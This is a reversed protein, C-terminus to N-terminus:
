IAALISRLSNVVCHTVSVTQCGVRSQLKSGGETRRRPAAPSARKVQLQFVLSARRLQALLSSMNM